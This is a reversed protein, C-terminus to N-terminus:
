TIKDSSGYVRSLEIVKFAEALVVDAPHCSAIISEGKTLGPVHKLYVTDAIRCMNEYIKDVVRIM